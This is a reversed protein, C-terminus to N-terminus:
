GKKFMKRALIVDHHNVAQDKNLDASFPPENIPYFLLSRLNGDTTKVFPFQVVPKAKGYRMNIISIHQQGTKYIPYSGKIDASTLGTKESWVKYHYFLETDNRGPEPAIMSFWTKTPHENDLVEMLIMKSLKVHAKRTTGADFRNIQILMEEFFGTDHHFAMFFVGGYVLTSVVILTISFRKHM